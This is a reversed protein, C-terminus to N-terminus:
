GHPCIFPMILATISELLKKQTPYRAIFRHTSTEAAILRHAFWTAQRKTYQGTALSARHIAEPLAIDGRLYASLEPVGHARMAPLAPDLGQQLLAGVEEVAGQEVMAEFRGAIAQRLEARPPDLLIAMLDWAPEPRVQRARWEALGTGTGCWVEWARALRQSDTPRLRAATAPDVGSLREHLAAPGIAALLARAQDRAQPGPDPIDALGEHLSALYLGTGGCLIPTSGAEHAAQMAALAAQRWWAVTGAQSAPRVGYLVHPALAEDEPTPRATVIRLEAYVQMSDANVITGDIRRALDLALASKGSCTPGAIVLAKMAPAKRAAGTM